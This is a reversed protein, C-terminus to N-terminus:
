IAKIALYATDKDKTLGRPSTPLLLSFSIPCFPSLLNVPMQVAPLVAQCHFVQLFASEPGSPCLMLVPMLWFSGPKANVGGICCNEEEGGSLLFVISACVSYPFHDNFFNHLLYTHM